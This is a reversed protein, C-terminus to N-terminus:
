LVNLRGNGLSTRTERSVTEIINQSDRVLKQGDQSLKATHIPSHNLAYTLMEDIQANDPMRGNRFAQIIGYFRLKRDVDQEQQVKDVPAAVSDKPPNDSVAKQADPLSM